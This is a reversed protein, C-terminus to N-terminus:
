TTMLTEDNTILYTDIIDMHADESTLDSSTRDKLLSQQFHQWNDLPSMSDEGVWVVVLTTYRQLLYFIKFKYM